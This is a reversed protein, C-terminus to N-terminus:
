DTPKYFPGTTFPNLILFIGQEKRAELRTEEEGGINEEEFNNKIRQDNMWQTSARNDEGHDHRCPLDRTTDQSPNKLNSETRSDFIIKPCHM